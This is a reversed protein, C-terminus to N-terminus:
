WIALFLPALFELLFISCVAGLALSALFISCAASHEAPLADMRGVLRVYRPVFLLPVPVFWIAWQLVIAWKMRLVVRRVEEALRPDDDGSEDGSEDSPDDSPDGSPDGVTDEGIGEDRERELEQERASALFDRAAEADVVPVQVSVALSNAGTSFPDLTKMNEGPIFALFGASELIARQVNAVGPPGSYVSVLERRGREVDSM